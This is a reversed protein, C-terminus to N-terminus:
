SVEQEQLKKYENRRRKINELEKSYTSNANIEYAKTIWKEAEDFEYLYLCSVGIDYYVKDIKMKPNSEYKIAKLFKEKAKEWNGIKAFNIGSELEPMKGDKLLNVKVYEKYPAIMRMFSKITKARNKNELERTDIAGPKKDVENKTKTERHAIRKVAIIRGTTLDIVQLAVEMDAIGKRKWSRHSKGEDDTWDEHTLDEKYNNVGVRGFILAAAGIFEGLRSAETQDVIGSFTLNHEKLLKDLHQRDLVEFRGSNFLAQTLDDSLDQSGKGTIEGIAIKHFHSLNVEAPRMVPVKLQVPACSFLLLVSLILCIPIIKM